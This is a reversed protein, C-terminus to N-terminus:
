QATFSAPTFTNDSMNVQAPAPPPPTTATTMDVSCATVYVDYLRGSALSGSPVLANLTAGDVWVNAVETYIGNIDTWVNVYYSQAGTVANWTIDYGGAGKTATLGTVVPLKASLDPVTFNAILVESNGPTTATVTYTGSAPVAGFDWYVHHAYTAPYTFERPTSSNIGPGTVTVNWSSAPETGGTTLLSTWVVLGYRDTNNPDLPDRGFYLRGGAAALNYAGPVGGLMVLDMVALSENEPSALTPAATQDAMLAFRDQTQAYVDVRYSGDPLQNSLVFSAQDSALVNSDWVFGDGDTVRYFYSGAGTVPSWSITTSGNIDTMKVLAPQNLTEAADITFRNVLTVTGNTATVTYTGSAAAVTTWQWVMYSSQAGDDYAVSLPTDLSPGTIALQWDGTLGPGYSQADRLTALVVLGNAGSGDNLTGGAVQLTYGGGTNSFDDGKKRCAASSLVVLTTLLVYVLTQMSFVSSVSRFLFASVSGGQSNASKM